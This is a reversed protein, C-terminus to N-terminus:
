IITGVWGQCHILHHGTVGQGPLHGTWSLTGYLGVRFQLESHSFPSHLDEFHAEAGVVAQALVELQNFTVAGPLNPHPYNLFTNSSLLKPKSSLNQPTKDLNPNSFTNPSRLACFFYYM